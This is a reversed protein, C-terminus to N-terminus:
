ATVRQKKAVMYKRCIARMAKMAEEDHTPLGGEGSLMQRAFGDLEELLANIQRKDKRKPAAAPEATVPQRHDAQPQAAQTRAAAEIFGQERLNKAWVRALEEIGKSYCNPRVRQYMGVPDQTIEVGYWNKPNFVIEPDRMADGNQTFYHAVSVYGEGTVEITLPMYPANAVKLTFSGGNRIARKFAETQGAAEVIAEISVQMPRRRTTM